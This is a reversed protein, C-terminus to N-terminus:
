SGKKNLILKGNLPQIEKKRDSVHAVTESGPIESILGEVKLKGILKEAQAPSLLTKKYASTGLEEVLVKEATAENAWVRRSNGAVLKLGEIKEGNMMRHLAYSKVSEIFEEILKRNQIVRVIQEDSLSEIALPRGEIVELGVAETVAENLKPCLGKAPCYGCWAGRVLPANPEQTKKAAVLLVFSWEVLYAKSVTWSRIPGHIHPARPQVIELRVDQFDFNCEHAAGLAYYLLQKNNAAEVPSVGYKFDFVVLTGNPKMICADNTGMLGIHLHELNFHREVSLVGGVQAHTKRVHDIYIQVASAMEETVEFGNIIQGLFERADKGEKLCLESLEHAATGEEAQM